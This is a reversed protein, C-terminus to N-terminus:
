GGRYESAEGSTDTTQRSKKPLEGKLYNEAIEKQKWKPLYRPEIRKGKANSEIVQWEEDTFEDKTIKVTDSKTVQLQKELKELRGNRM